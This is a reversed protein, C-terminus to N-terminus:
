HNWCRYYLYKCEPDVFCLPLYKEQAELGLAKNWSVTTHKSWKTLGKHTQILIQDRPGGCRLGGFIM